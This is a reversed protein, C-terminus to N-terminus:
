GSQPLDFLKGFRNLVALKVPLFEPTDILSSDVIEFAAKRAELHIEGDLALKAVRLPLEGSQRTGLVDGPGRFEFDAEAIRFGDATEELTALRRIADPASSESFLFCYGQFKGRGVRGRLQHLQSLGFREAELIVMMTANPVDIGVEIVTTSVLAALEGAQFREMIERKEDSSMRGHLLGVSFESLEGQRLTRFVEEAAHSEARSSEVREADPDMVAATALDPSSEPANKEDTEEEAKAEGIRPCVVYLQRGARLQEQIFGWSRRRTPPGIIRSTVVKQRGPPLESIASIDLDGFTTMAMTRPIPTATMVLVHPSMEGQSFRSRQAVGFRHQEDIVVVGPRAFRVDDQIVAQTGVILQMEGTAMEEILRRRQAPTIQGTLLARKVRSNRLAEDISLWHQNALVETPAMIIGQFGAAVAVLLAYIAVATKGAGVDAQLLRHMPRDRALDACIEKVARNQGPTFDFPFLRRIRSDIKATCELPPSKQRRQSARRRLALGTQFEFLDEFVLRRKGQQYQEPSTALHVLRLAVSLPVLQQTERFKEPLPDAVLPAFEDVANRAIRRMEHMRLGETLRYRPLMGGTTEFDGDDLWQVRPHQFEWRGAKKKPKGSFLVHNGHLLKQHIWRQNFWLGRVYQGQCELLVASMTRGGSLNRTEADVVTGRVSAAEGEVLRQVERVDTLDLMERPINWLIDAATRLDLKALLAARDPGVGRLFQVPTELPDESM